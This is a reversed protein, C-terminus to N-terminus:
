VSVGLVDALVALNSRMAGLYTAGEAVQEATTSQLSDLVLIRQDKAQTSEVVTRALRQDSDEAVLVASLGIADVMEALFVVTEFSAETEASCGPFAAYYALGCTEMLYRFPFRDAFVLASHASSAGALALSRGLEALRNQYTVARSSYADANVPDLKGLADALASVVQAALEPSLWVHEDPEPEDGEEERTQMGEVVEEDLVSASVVQLLSLARQNPNTANALAEAAWADSPGGVYVFLDASAIAAIDAVSPQYSHLDTGNDLLYRVSHNVALDGLVERVWDYAPFITCVISLPTTGEPSENTVVGRAAPDTTREDAAPRPQEGCGALVGALAAAAGAVFTRRDM